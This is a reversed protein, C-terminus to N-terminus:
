SFDASRTLERLRPFEVEIDSLGPMSLAEIINRHQSTLRQYDEISLLVHAPKGRDTIFVPGATAAKKARGTDQNFERSTLTTIIM